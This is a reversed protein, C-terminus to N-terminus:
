KWTWYYISSNSAPFFGTYDHGGLLEYEYKVQKIVEVSIGLGVEANIKELGVGLNFDFKRGINIFKGTKHLGGAKKIRYTETIM